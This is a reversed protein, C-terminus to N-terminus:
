KGKKVNQRLGPIGTELDEKVYKLLGHKKDPARKQQNKPNISFTSKDKTDTVTALQQIIGPEVEGKVINGVLKDFKGTSGLAGLIQDAGNALPIAQALGSATALTAAEIGDQKRRHADLVQRFTAGVQMALFIPHETMWRPVDQGYVRIGGAEPQGKKQKGPRYFGGFSQPNYFGLLLAAGGISGKKLNNLIQEAEEPKLEGMGKHFFYALKEAGARRTLDSLGVRALKLASLSGFAYRSGELAINTPVKVFPLLIRFLAATNKAGTSSSNELTRMAAEYASSLKNDGMFIARNADKYANLRNQADITPDLPDLGKKAAAEFRKAYSYEFIARKFPAKIASHLHGWFDAAEPPLRGAVEKGYLASIDSQGGKSLSLEDFSDKMGQTAATAYSRALAKLNAGAEFDAKAALRPLLKSYGSGLLEEPIKLSLTTLGAAALKGLVTISALKAWRGWKVAFDVVKRGVEKKSNAIEAIQKNIKAQERNIDARIKLYDNDVQLKRQTKEEITGTENQSKLDALKTEARKKATGLRRENDEKIAKDFGDKIVEEVDKHNLGEIHDKLDNYVKDVVISLTNIGDHVYNIALKTLPEIMEVPIKNAGIDKLSKRAITHLTALLEAREERLKTRTVEKRTRRAIEGVKNVSGQEQLKRVQEERDSLDSELQKIRATADTLQKELEPSLGEGGNAQKARNLIRVRSYDRKLMEQRDRLTIGARRGIEETAARNEELLAETREFELHNEAANEPHEDSDKLLADQRNELKAKHYRLAAQQEETAVVKGKVIDKSIKEPDLEGSDILRKGEKDVDALKKKQRPVDEGREAEVKSNTIGTLKEESSQVSGSDGTQQSKEERVKEEDKPINEGQPVGIHQESDNEEIKGKEVANDQEKLDPEASAEGSKNVDPKEQTRGEESQSSQGEEPREAVQQGPRGNEEQHDESKSKDKENGKQKLIVNKLQNNLEERDKEAQELNIENEANKVPDDTKESYKKIDNDLDAIKSGLDYKEKEADNAHLLGITGFLPAQKLVADSIDQIAGGITQNFVPRDSALDVGGKLVAQGAQLASLDVAAKSTAEGYKPILEGLKDIFKDKTDNLVTKFGNQTLNKDVTEKLADTVIGQVIKDQVEASAKGFLGVNKDAFILGNLAGTGGIYADRVLPNLKHDPDVEDMTEQGQGFGQLAFMTKPLEAYEGGVAAPAINALMGLTKTAGMGLSKTDEIQSKQGPTVGLDTFKDVPKFAKDPIIQTDSLSTNLHNLVWAGGKLVQTGGKLAQSTVYAGSKMVKGLTSDMAHQQKIEDPTAKRLLDKPKQAAIQKYQDVKERIEPPLQQYLNFDQSPSPKSGVSSAPTTDVKKKSDVLVDSAPPKWTSKQPTVVEDTAPPTWNFQGM